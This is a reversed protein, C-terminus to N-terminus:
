PLHEGTLFSNRYIRNVQYMNYFSDYNTLDKDSNFVATLQDHFKPNNPFHIKLNKITLDYVEHNAFKSFKYFIQPKQNKSAITEFRYLLIEETPNLISYRRKGVFRYTDGDCAKYGFIDTKQLRNSQGDHTVTFHPRDFLLNLKINSKNISCDTVYTMKENRFDTASLYVGGQKAYTVFSLVILIVSLVIIKKM